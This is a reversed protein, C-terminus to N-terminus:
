ENRESSNELKEYAIRPSGNRVRIVGCERFGAEGILRRMTRNDRHTDIRLHGTIGEAYALAARFVGHREGDGAIRHIVGYPGERKWAGDIVRYTEETDPGFRYHCVALVKGRTGPDTEEAAVYGHGNEIDSRVATEPPWDKGWQTPNGNEEMFRRARAYIALIESLDEWTAKRIKM